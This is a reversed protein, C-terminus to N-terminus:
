SCGENLSKVQDCMYQINKHSVCLLHEWNTLELVGNYIERYCLKKYLMMIVQKYADEKNM